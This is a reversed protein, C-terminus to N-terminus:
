GQVPELAIPTRYGIRRGDIMLREATKPDQKHADYCTACWLVPEDSDHNSYFDGPLMLVSTRETLQAFVKGGKCETEWACVGPHAVHRALLMLTEASVLEPDYSMSSRVLEQGGVKRMVLAAGDWMIELDADLLELSREYARFVERTLLEPHVYFVKFGARFCIGTHETEPILYERINGKLVQGAAGLVVDRTVPRLICGSPLVTAM